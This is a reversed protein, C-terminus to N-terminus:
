NESPLYQKYKTKLYNLGEENDLLNLNLKEKIFEHRQKAESIIDGWSLIFVDFNEGEHIHGYKRNKQTLLPVIESKFDKTILIFKWRTKGKPFRKDNSVRTAYSEIQTKEDFGADLSPRKLEIVLNEKGASGLSFQQWLCVDPITELELNSGSSLVDEFDERKLCDKLYAKLVNKLTLDDVGYTYQDGFIWTENIIIKHLHRRELINKNLDKNYIIQELGSLFHLRNKIETMADIISSLSTTELLEALDERQEEPLEIVESLIKRLNKSDNELAESILSLTLKKNRDDQDNFTPLYENLQLAVIDFVQRKSEEILNEAPEKYPYIGKQKLDTIFEKSYEHLRKRIYNRTFDKAAKFIGLIVEDSEHLNLTNDRQLKEIYLSQIFVSIPISSRIGLNTELFPIGQANCLYTKKKNEFNWEMVKIVFRYTLEGKQVTIETQETNKILSAFELETNNFFIKFNPYSIWYSAFKEELEKRNEKKLAYEANKSNINEIEITFGPKGEGKKLQKLDSIETRSLQNRDITISFESASGNTQYISKFKVLDGLALGKYRGKGEKGHYQRGNPSQTKHKKESGGLRSFVDQAKEYTLGHGNDIIKIYEYGGLRSLYEVRVESADADLSNWILEALANTGNAKTLSEIHDKEVGIDILKSM